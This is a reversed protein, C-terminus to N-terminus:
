KWPLQYHLRHVKFCTQEENHIHLVIGEVSPNSIFYGKIQKYVNEPKKWDEQAIGINVPNIGHQIYCHKIPYEESNMNYPNNGIKHGVLEFTKGQISPDDIDIYKFEFKSYNSFVVGAISPVAMLIKHNDSDNYEPHHAEFDWKDDNSKQDLPMFGINHENFMGNNSFKQWGKPPERYQGKKSGKHIMKLDRRKWVKGQHILRCTGDIKETIMYYGTTLHDTIYKQLESHFKGIAVLESGYRKKGDENTKNTKNDTAELEFICSMKDLVSNTETKFISNCTNISESESVSKM